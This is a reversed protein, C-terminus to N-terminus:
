SMAPQDEHVDPSYRLGSAMCLALMRGGTYSEEATMSRRLDSPAKLTREWPM